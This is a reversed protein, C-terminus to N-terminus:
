KLPTFAGLWYAAAMSSIVFAVVWALALCGIVALERVTENM